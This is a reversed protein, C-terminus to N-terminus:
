QPTTGGPMPPALPEELEGRPGPPPPMANRGGMGNPGSPHQPGRLAGHRAAREAQLAKWQEPTLKARIALLFRANAKELEARAQAIKDIQALIRTENPQDDRMMPEMEIEAKEVVGRLDVLQERHQLLIADMSKRQDGTLKLKDVMYSDNWWRGQGDRPGLAREFPPHHQGFGPGEGPQAGAVGPGAFIGALALGLAIATLRKM